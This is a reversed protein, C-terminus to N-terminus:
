CYFTELRTSGDGDRGYTKPPLSSPGSQKGDEISSPTMTSAGLRYDLALFTSPITGSKESYSWHARDAYMTSAAGVDAVGEVSIQGHCATPIGAARQFHITASEDWGRRFAAAESPTSPRRPKIAALNSRSLRERSVASM